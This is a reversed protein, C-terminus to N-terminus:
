HLYFLKLVDLTNLSPYGERYRKEDEKLRKLITTIPANQDYGEDIKNQTTQVIYGNRVLDSVKNRLM